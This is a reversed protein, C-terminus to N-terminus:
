WGSSHEARCQHSTSVVPFSPHDAPSRPPPKQLLSDMSSVAVAVAIKVASPSHGGLTSSPNSFSSRLPHVSATPSLASGAAPVRALTRVGPKLKSTSAQFFATAATTSVAATAALVAILAAAASEAPLAAAPRPSPRQQVYAPQQAAEAPDASHVLKM